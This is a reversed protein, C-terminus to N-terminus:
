ALYTGCPSPTIIIMFINSFALKTPQQPLNMIKSKKSLNSQIRMKLRLRLSLVSFEHRISRLKSIPILKPITCNCGKCLLWFFINVVVGGWLSLAFVIHVQMWPVLIIADM